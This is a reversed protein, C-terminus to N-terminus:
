SDQKWRGEGHTGREDIDAEASVSQQSVKGGVISSHIFEGQKKEGHREPKEDSEGDGQIANRIYVSINM